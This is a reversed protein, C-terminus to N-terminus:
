PLALPAAPYTVRGESVVAFDHISAAVTSTLSMIHGVEMHHAILADTVMSRHCRWFVAESCAIAVTGEKALQLLVGLGHDFAPTQMYDAYGRFSENRWAGNPSESIPLARRRGGLALLHVYGIDSPMAAVIEAQNWQPCRKSSPYSRIDCLLDVGNARLMALVEALSRTSHGITYITSM